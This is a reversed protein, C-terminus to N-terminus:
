GDLVKLLQMRKRITVYGIHEQFIKLDGKGIIALVFSDKNGKHHFPGWIRTHLNFRSEILAQIQELGKKNVSEIGVNFKRIGSNDAEFLGSLGYGLDQIPCDAMLHRYTNSKIRWNYKGFIFHKRFDLWIAKCHIRATWSKKNCVIHPRLEYEIQFEDAWREGFDKNKGASLEIQYNGRKLSSANDGLM